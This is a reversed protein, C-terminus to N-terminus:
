GNMGKICIADEKTMFGAEIKKICVEELAADAMRALGMTTRQLLFSLVAKSCARRFSAFHQTVESLGTFKAASCYARRQQREVNPRM